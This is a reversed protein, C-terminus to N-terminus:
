AGVWNAGNYYVPTNIAGGGVITALFTPALADTVYARDGVVGAPLTAVTYGGTGITTAAVTRQTAGKLTLATTMTQAGSGSAVLAPTQFVLDSATGTGTGQGSKITLNAGGVNGDTGARSGQAQLTQAVPSAANANGLQVVVGVPSTIAGRGNWNYASAAGIVIAGTSGLSGASLGGSLTAQGLGSISFQTSGNVQVDFLNGATSAANVAFGTGSASGSFATATAEQILGQAVAASTSRLWAGTLTFAPAAPAAAASIVTKGLGSFAVATSIATNLTPNPYTGALDGGATGTPPTTGVLAFGGAGGATNGLATAVGSGPVVFALAALTGGVGINLAQAASRSIWDLTPNPYTGALDGGAPGTPGTPVASPNGIQSM